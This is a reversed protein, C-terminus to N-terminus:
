YNQCYWCATYNSKETTSTNWPKKTMETSTQHHMQEKVKVNTSMLDVQSISCVSHLITTKHQHKQKICKQVETNV